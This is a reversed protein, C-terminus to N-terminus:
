GPGGRPVEEHGLECGGCGFTLVGSGCRLEGEVRGVGVRGSGLLEM